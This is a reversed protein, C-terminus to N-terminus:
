RFDTSYGAFYHYFYWKNLMCLDSTQLKFVMSICDMGKFELHRRGYKIKVFSHLITM